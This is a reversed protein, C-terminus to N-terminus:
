SVFKSFQKKKKKRKKIIEVQGQPIGTLWSSEPFMFEVSNIFNLNM